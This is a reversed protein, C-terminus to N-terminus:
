VIRNIVDQTTIDSYLFMDDPIDIGERHNESQAELIRNTVPDSCWRVWTAGELEMMKIFRSIHGSSGYVIHQDPFKYGIFDFTEANDSAM